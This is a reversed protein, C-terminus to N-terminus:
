RKAAPSSKAALRAVIGGFVAGVKNGDTSLPAVLIEGSQDHAIYTASV